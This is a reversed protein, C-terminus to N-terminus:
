PTFVRGTRPWSNPNLSELSSLFANILKRFVSYPALWLCDFRYTNLLRRPTRAGGVIVHGSDTADVERFLHVSDSFHGSETVAWVDQHRSMRDGFNRARWEPRYVAKESVTEPADRRAAAGCYRGIDRERCADSPSPRATKLAFEHGRRVAQGRGSSAGGYFSSGRSLLLLEVSERM